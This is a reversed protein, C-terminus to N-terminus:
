LMMLLIINLINCTSSDRKTPFDFLGYAPRGLTMEGGGDAGRDHQQRQGFAGGGPTDPPKEGLKRLCHRELASPVPYDGRRNLRPPM